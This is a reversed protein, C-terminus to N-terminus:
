SNIKNKYPTGYRSHSFTNLFLPADALVKDTQDNERERLRCFCLIDDMAWEM